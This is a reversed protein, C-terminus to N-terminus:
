GQQRQLVRVPNFAFRRLRGAYDKNLRQFDGIVNLTIGSLDQTYKASIGSTKIKAFGSLNDRTTFPGSNPVGSANCGPCTGYQNLNAPLYQGHRHGFRLLDRARGLLGAHVDQKAYRGTLLLQADAPLKFLLEGRLAWDNGNEADAAGGAVNKFLPDYHNSEFPSALM